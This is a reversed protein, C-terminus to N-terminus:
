KEPRGSGAEVASLHDEVALFEVRAVPAVEAEQPELAMDQQGEVRGVRVGPGGAQEGVVAGHGVQRALLAGPYTCGNSATGSGSFPLRNGASRARSRRRRGWRGPPPRPARCARNSRPPPTRRGGFSPRPRTDGGAVAPETDGGSRSGVGHRVVRREAPGDAHVPGVYAPRGARRPLKQGRDLRPAGEGGVSREEIRETPRCPGPVLDHVRARWPELRLARQPRDHGDVPELDHAVPLHPPTGSAPSRVLASAATGEGDIARAPEGQAGRVRRAM